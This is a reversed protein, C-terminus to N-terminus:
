QGNKSQGSAPTTALAELRALRAKLDAIEADKEQVVQYLGQIAALAVGSADLAAIHRDDQGIGFAAYFDQAVPGMHRVSPSEAKYNWTTVPLGALRDLIAERDVPAFNEKANRDSFDTWTGGTGLFAGTSTRILKGETVWIDVWQSGNVNFGAGGNARVRFQYDRLSPFDAPANDAWVFSGQHIAKALHGAAFSAYGSATNNSGGAVTAHNASALNNVGGAVVAYIGSATNSTGGAVTAYDSSATNLYGGGITADPGSAVNNSGGAVTAGATSAVNAIGGAVTAVYASATNAQGGGVVSRWGDADNWDGGAVTAVQGATNYLGGGIAAYNGSAVNRYGGGITAGYVGPSTENDAHGGIMNPCPDNPELRPCAWPVSRLNQRPSFVESAEFTGSHDLDVSVELWLDPYTLFLGGFPTFDGLATAFLGGTVQVSTDTEEWRKSGGTAADLIKFQMRYTGDAVPGGLQNLLSGQYTITDPGGYALTGCALALAVGIVRVRM